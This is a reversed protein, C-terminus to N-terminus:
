YFRNRNDKITAAKRLVAAPDYQQGYGFQSYQNSMLIKMRGQSELNKQQAAVDANEVITATVDDVRVVYVASNGDLAEPVVKGKNAPNFTAGLVKHEFSVPSHGSGSFRLSDATQVIQKMSAAIADLTTIKGIRKNIEEAKKKDGSALLFHTAGYAIMAADGRDHAGFPFTVDLEFSAWFKGGDKPINSQFIRYANMAAQM